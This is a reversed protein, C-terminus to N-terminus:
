CDSGFYPFEIGTAISKNDVFDLSCFALLITTTKIIVFGPPVVTALALLTKLPVWVEMPGM